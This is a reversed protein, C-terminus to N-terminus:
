KGDNLHGSKNKPVYHSLHSVLIFVFLIPKNLTNEFTSLTTQFTQFSKNFEKVLISIDLTRDRGVAETSTGLICEEQNQSISEDEGQCGAKSFSEM